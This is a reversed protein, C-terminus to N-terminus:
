SGAQAPLLPLIADTLAKMTLPRGKGGFIARIRGDRDILYTIPLINPAGFGDPKAGALLAAPYSFQGMVGRVAAIDRARDASLGILDVGRGHFARYFTDLAPMEARCPPCWTAWFNVVVIRGRLAALDFAQGELTQVAIPPASDGVGPSASAYAVGVALVSMLGAVTAIIARM